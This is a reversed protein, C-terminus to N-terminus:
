VEVKVIGIAVVESWWCIVDASYYLNVEWCIIDVMGFAINLGDWEGIVM